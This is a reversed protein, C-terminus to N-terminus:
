KLYYNEITGTFDKRYHVMGPQEFWEAFNTTKKYDGDGQAYYILSTVEKNFRPAINLGEKGKFTAVLVDLLQQAKAQGDAAYIVIRPFIEDNPNYTNQDLNIQLKLECKFTNILSSFAGDKIGYLITLMCDYMGTNKPMLHIKYQGVMTKKISASKPGTPNSYVYTFDKTTLDIRDGAGSFSETYMFYRYGGQAMGAMIIDDLHMIKLVTLWEDRNPCTANYDFSLQTLITPIEAQNKIAYIQLDELFRKSNEPSLVTNVKNSITSLLSSVQPPMENKPLLQISKRLQVLSQELTSLSPLINTPNAKTCHYHAIILILISIACSKKM